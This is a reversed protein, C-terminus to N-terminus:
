GARLQVAVMRDKIATVVEAPPSASQIQVLVFEVGYQDERTRLAAMVDQNIEARSHMVEDMKRTNVVDRLTGEVFSYVISGPETVELAFRVPDVVRFTYILSIDM